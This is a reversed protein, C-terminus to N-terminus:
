TRSTIFMVAELARTGTTKLSKLFRFNETKKGIKVGILPKTGNVSFQDVIRDSLVKKSHISYVYDGKAYLM